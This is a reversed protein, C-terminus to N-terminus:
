YGVVSVRGNSTALRVSPGEGRQVAVDRSGTIQDEGVHFTVKGNSTTARFSGPTDHPVRLEIAGNSTEFLYTGDQSFETQGVIRGNSTRVSSSGELLLRGFEVRGNSTAATVQGRGSQLVISGNATRLDLKAHFAVEVAIAGHSTKACLEGIQEPSAYLKFRVQANVLSSPLVPKEARLVMKGQSTTSKVVLAELVEDVAGSSLGRVEKEAVIYPRDGELALWSISGSFSHLEIANVESGLFFEEQLHKEVFLGM